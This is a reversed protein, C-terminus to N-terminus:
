QVVVTLMTPPFAAPIAGGAANSPASQGNVSVATVIYCYTNGASVASDAYTKTTIATANLQTFGATTTPATTPCVGSARWANYTTASPNQTDVWSLTM